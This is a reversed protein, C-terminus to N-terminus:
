CRSFLEEKLHLQHKAIDEDETVTGMYWLLCSQNCLVSPLLHNGDSPHM